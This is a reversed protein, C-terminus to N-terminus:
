AALGKIRTRADDARQAQSAIEDTQPFLAIVNAQSQEQATVEPFQYDSSDAPPTVTEPYQFADARETNELAKEIHEIRSLTLRRVEPMGQREAEIDQNYSM